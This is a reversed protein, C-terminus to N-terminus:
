RERRLWWEVAVINPLWGLWTVLPYIHVFDFGMLQLSHLYFRLTAAGFTLAYNRIMWGRHQSLRRQRASQLAQWATYLWLSAFLCFGLRSTTGGFAVTGMLFATAGGAAVCTLYLKGSDRHLKVDFRRLAPVFQFPGLILALVSCFSHVIVIPLIAHYKADFLPDFHLCSVYRIAEGAVVLAFYTM